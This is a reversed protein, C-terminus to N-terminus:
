PERKNEFFLRFRGKQKKYQILKSFKQRFYKSRGLSKILQISGWVKRKNKLNIIGQNYLQEAKAFKKAEIQTGEISGLQMIQPIIEDNFLSGKHYAELISKAYLFQKLGYTRSISNERMRYAVVHGPMKGIRYGKKMARLVVDYDECYDIERYGGMSDLVSKKLFWTPHNAISAIELIQKTREHDLEELDTFYLHKGEENIVAMGSFVFDLNNRELYQKQIELRNRVPVDDADMKAIYYGKASKLAVNASAASGLNKENEILKIREDERAICQLGTKLVHNDPDDLVIIFELHNHTQNLISHVCKELWEFRENYVSMIVSVLRDM